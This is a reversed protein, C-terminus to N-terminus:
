AKFLARFIEFMNIVSDSVKTPGDLIISAVVALGLLFVVVFFGAKLLWSKMKILEKKNLLEIEILEKKIETTEHDLKDINETNTEIRQKNDNIDIKNEIVQGEVIFCINILGKLLTRQEALTLDAFINLINDYVRGEYQNSAIDKVRVIVDSLKQKEQEPM